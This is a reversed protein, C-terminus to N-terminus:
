DAADNSLGGEEVLPPLIPGGEEVEAAELEGEPHSIALEAAVYRRREVEHERAEILKKIFLNGAAM